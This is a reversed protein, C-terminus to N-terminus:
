VSYFGCTRLIVFVEKNIFPNFMYGYIVFAFVITDILLETINVQCISIIATITLSDNLIVYEKILCLM